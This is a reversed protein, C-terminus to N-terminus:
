EGFEFTACDPCYIAVEPPDADDQLDILCGRWGVAVGTSLAGCEICRLRHETATDSDVPM